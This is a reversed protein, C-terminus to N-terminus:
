PTQHILTARKAKLFDAVTCARELKTPVGKQKLNNLRKYHILTKGVDVIQIHADELKWLQGKELAVPAIRSKTKMRNVM